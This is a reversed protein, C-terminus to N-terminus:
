EFGIVVKLDNFKSFDKSEHQLRGAVIGPSIRLSKAFDIIRPKTFPTISTFNAWEQPPILFDAAFRNAEIEKQSENEIGELFVDRKGHKLIHGVEHFLTFWFYDDRKGRLSLQIVAKEPSLWHTAGYVRTKPLAPTFVLAVGAEASIAVLRKAFDDHMEPILTRMEQIASLFRKEDFPKTSQQQALHRGQQLWTTTSHFHSTFSKQRKYNVAFQNWIDVHKEPNSIQFFSLLEQISKVSAKKESIWGQVYLEKLPFLKVWDEYDALRKAENRKAVCEQYQRERENWFEAPTGLVRELRLSMEATISAKGNIIENIHKPTVDMRKALEAQTLNREQLLDALTEGPFSVSDPKYTYTKSM